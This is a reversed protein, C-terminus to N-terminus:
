FPSYPTKEIIEAAKREIVRASVEGPNGGFCKKFAWLRDPNLRMKKLFRKLRSHHHRHRHIVLDIEGDFVVWLMMCKVLWKASDLDTTGNFCVHWAHQFFHPPVPKDPLHRENEPVPLVKWWYPKVGEEAPSFIEYHMRDLEPWVEQLIMHRTIQHWATEM